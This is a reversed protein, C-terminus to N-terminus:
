RCATNTNPWPDFDRVGLSCGLGWWFRSFHATCRGWFPIGNTKVAMETQPLQCSCAVFSWSRSQSPCKDAGSWELIEQVLQLAWAPPLALRFNAAHPRWGTRAGFWAHQFTLRCCVRSLSPGGSVHEEGCSRDQVAGASVHSLEPPLSILEVPDEIEAAVVCVALEVAYSLCSVDQLKYWPKGFSILHCITVNVPGTSM